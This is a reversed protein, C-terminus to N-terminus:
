APQLGVIPEAIWFHGSVGAPITFLFSVLINDDEPVVTLVFDDGVPAYAGEPTGAAYSLVMPLEPDPTYGTVDIDLLQAKPAGDTSRIALGVGHPRGPTARFTFAVLIETDETADQASLFGPGLPGAFGASDDYDAEGHGGDTNYLGRRPNTWGVAGSASGKTSTWLASLLGGTYPDVTPEPDPEDDGSAAVAPVASLGMVAPATWAAAVLVTRRSPKLETLARTLGQVDTM